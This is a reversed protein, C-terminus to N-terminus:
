PVRAGRRVRYLPCSGKNFPRTGKLWDLVWQGPQFGGATVGYAAVPSYAGAAAAQLLSMHVYGGDIYGTYGYLAPQWTLTTSGTYSGTINATFQTPLNGPTEPVWSELNLANTVLVNAGNEAMRATGGALINLASLHQTGTFLVTAGTNVIVSPGGTIIGPDRKISSWIVPKQM